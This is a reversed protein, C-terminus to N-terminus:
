DHRDDRDRNGWGRDHESGRNFSQRYRYDRDYRDYDRREYRPQYSYSNYSNYGNYSNYYVPPNWYGNAWTYGPGPCPPIPAAYVPAQTYYGRNNGVSVGFSFRTQAFMAGGALLMLAILKTKM